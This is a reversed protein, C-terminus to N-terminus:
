LRELFVNPTSLRIRLGLCGFMVSSRYHDPKDGRTWMNVIEGSPREESVRTPVKMQAWFDPVARADAPLRIVGQVLLGHSEDMAETKNYYVLGLAREKEARVKPDPLANENIPQALRVKSKGFRKQFQKAMHTEPYFDIVCLGRYVEMINALQEWQDPGYFAAIRVVPAVGAWTDRCLSAQAADMVTVHLGKGVDVGIIARAARDTQAHTDTIRELTRDTLKVDEPTYPLGLVSRYFRERTQMNTLGSQFMSWMRRLPIRGACLQSIQYGSWEGRGPYLPVWQGDGYRDMPRECFECVAHLDQEPDLDGCRLAYVGEHVERVVHTFWDVHQFRGCSSCKTHWQKWDSNDLLAAVGYSDVTPNGLVHLAQLNSHGVRDEIQWVNAGGVKLCKDLEEIRGFDCPAEAFSSEQKSSAYYIAGQGFHKLMVGDASQGPTDFRNRAQQKLMAYFPSANVVTNVRNGIYRSRLERTPLAVMGTYGQMCYAFDRGIEVETFGVQVAKCCVTRRSPDDMYGLQPKHQTFDMPTKFRTRHAARVVASFPTAGQETLIAVAMEM